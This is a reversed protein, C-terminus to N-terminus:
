SRPPLHNTTDGGVLLVLLDNVNTGTPGTVMLAGAAQLAPYADNNRLRERPDFGAKIIREATEGDVIAGAADTPGDIGDTALAMLAIKELGQMNIAASLALEQNRGGLGSGTVTVTTEGGWIVCAPPAAPSGQERIGRALAAAAKGVERAEGELYSGLYVAAYGLREATEKGALAALRNSAVVTNNVKEFLRDGPKPTERLNGEMGAQLRAAVPGPVREILRYRELIRWCDAYTTPDPATPGSAIADLPDGVVDSLILAAVAAPQALRAMQGGKLRDLHKRVANVERITAGSKLLLSTTEQLEALSLGEAPLPLLASAGGSVLVIARDRETLGSLLDKVATAAEVGAQDPIPHGSEFLRLSSPLVAGARQGHRTVVIGAVLREGLVECAALAMPVAAKGMSLLILRGGLHLDWTTDGTTLMGDATLTLRRRVTDAPDVARLAADRITALDDIM